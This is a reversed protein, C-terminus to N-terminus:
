KLSEKVDQVLARLDLHVHGQHLRIQGLKRSPSDDCLQHAHRLQSVGQLVSGVEWEEQEAQLLRGLELITLPESVEELLALDIHLLHEWTPGWDM